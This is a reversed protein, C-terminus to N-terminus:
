LRRAFRERAAEKSACGNWVHEDVVGEAGGGQPWGSRGGAADREGFEVACLVAERGVGVGRGGKAVRQMEWRSEEQREDVREVGIEEGGVVIEYGVEALEGGRGVDSEVEFFVAVVGFVLAAQAM